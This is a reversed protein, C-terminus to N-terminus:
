KSNHRPRAVPRSPTTVSGHLEQQLARLERESAAILGALRRARARLRQLLPGQGPRLDALNVFRERSHEFQWKRLEATSVGLSEATQTLTALGARLRELALLRDGLHVFRPAVSAAPTRRPAKRKKAAKAPAARKAKRKTM